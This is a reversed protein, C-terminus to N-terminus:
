KWPEHVKALPAVILSVLYTASPKTQSWTMTRVGGVGRVDSVLAGNSVAMYGSPVAAELEWTMKDNPFDYTPFWYHNNTDEGQSWIQRPTHVGQQIFTLGQGNDVKADYDITFRVTDRFTAPKALFVVLTDGHRANRLVAGRSDAIRRVTLKPGADLIVSDLGPRLAVLTTAVSGKFSTSDWDFDRVAIRQHVLDYDHSRAYRDNTVRELNPNQARLASIALSATAVGIAIAFHRTRM